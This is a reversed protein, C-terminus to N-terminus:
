GQLAEMMVQRPARRGTMQEFQLFGQELLIEIGNVTAWPQGTSVKHQRVQELLPTDVPEYNFQALTLM